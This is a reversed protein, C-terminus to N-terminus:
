KFVDYFAKCFLNTALDLEANGLPTLEYTKEKGQKSYIRIAKKRELEKLAPYITGPNPKCGKRKEIEAALEAGNMPKKNLLWLILFSLLGRMDCVSEKKVNNTKKLVFTNPTRYM